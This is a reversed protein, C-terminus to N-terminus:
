ELKSNTRFIFLSTEIWRVVEMVDAATDITVIVLFCKGLQEVHFSELMDKIYYRRDRESNAHKFAFLARTVLNFKKNPLPSSLAKTVKGITDRDVFQWLYFTNEHATQMNEAFIGLLLIFTGTAM